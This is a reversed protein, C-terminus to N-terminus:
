RKDWHRAVQPPRVTVITPGDDSGTRESALVEIEDDAQIQEV